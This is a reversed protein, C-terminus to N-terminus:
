SQPLDVGLADALHAIQRRLLALEDALQRNQARVAQLDAVTLDDASARESSAALPLAVPGCLLHAWRSEREGPARALKVVLAGGAEEKRQALEDLFAEVSSVDAFRHLRESATRLEASTQPGRLMLTALLAVSQDPVRLVRGLNHAYRTVRSGSSEIVLSRARLADVATQVQAESADLVPQRNNKQNCGSTLGNLSLPYTDPVTREKEVLVGIVRAELLSLPAISTMPMIKNL